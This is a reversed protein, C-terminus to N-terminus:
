KENVITNLIRKLDSILKVISNPDLYMKNLGGKNDIFSLGSDDVAIEMKCGKDGCTCKM